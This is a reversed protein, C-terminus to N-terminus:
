RSGASFIPVAPDNVHELTVRTSPGCLWSEVEAIPIYVSPNFAFRHHRIRFPPGIIPEANEEHLSGLLIYSLVYFVIAAVVLTIARRIRIESWHNCSDM